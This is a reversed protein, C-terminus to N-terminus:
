RTARGSRQRPIDNRVTSGYDGGPTRARPGRIMAVAAMMPRSLHARDRRAARISCVNRIDRIALDLEGIAGRVKGRAERHGDLLGLVTELTLGAAFIRHMVINNMAEAIGDRERALRLAM